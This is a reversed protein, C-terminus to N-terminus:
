SGSKFALVVVFLFNNTLWYSFRFFFYFFYRIGFVLPLQLKDTSWLPPCRTRFTHVCGHQLNEHSKLVWCGVIRYSGIRDSGFRAWGFVPRTFLYIELKTLTMYKRSVLSHPLLIFICLFFPKIKVDTEVFNVYRKEDKDSGRVRVGSPRGAATGFFLLCFFLM